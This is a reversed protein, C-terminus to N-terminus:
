KSDPDIVYEGDLRIIKATNPVAYGCFHTPEVSIYHPTANYDEDYSYTIHEPHGCEGYSYFACTACSVPPNGSFVVVNNDLLTNSIVSNIIAAVDEFEMDAANPCVESLTGVRELLSVLMKHQEERSPILPNPM